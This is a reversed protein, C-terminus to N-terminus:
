VFLLSIVYPAWALLALAAPARRTSNQSDWSFLYIALGFALLYSSILVAVSIMPDYVTPRGYALGEFAQMAHTTPLLSAAPQISEPLTELPIMMGGLLVSPLFILQSWLVVGRGTSVVGILAGIAGFVLATLLAILALNLWSIPTAAGFLPGATIAIISSAILAHFITTLTPVALISVAPVGNIRYSRYIGQNRSEVLPNPLGLLCSAMVTFIIMAPIMSEKFFPNIQTMVLGMMAYFGLPFLYNMMMMTTNRLGTKFEYSFHTAFANM